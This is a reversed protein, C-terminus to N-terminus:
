SVFHAGRIYRFHDATTCSQSEDGIGFCQGLELHDRLKKGDQKEHHHENKADSAGHGKAAGNKVDEAIM